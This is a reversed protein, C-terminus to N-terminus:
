LMPSTHWIRQLYDRMSRDSSFFGTRAVNLIASRTWKDQNAYREEVKEQAAVYSEFDALAMFRDQNLLNYIVSDFLHPDGESFHGALILDITAKLV